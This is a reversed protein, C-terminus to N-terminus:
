GKKMKLLDDDSLTRLYADQENKIDSLLKVYAVLDKASPGKLKGEASEVMLHKVERRLIELTKTLLDDVDADSTPKQAEIVPDPPLVNAFRRDGEIREKLGISEPTLLTTPQESAPNESLDTHLKGGRLM